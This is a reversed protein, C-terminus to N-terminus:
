LIGQRQYFTISLLFFNINKKTNKIGKNAFSPGAMNFDTVTTKVQARANLVGATLAILIFSKKM